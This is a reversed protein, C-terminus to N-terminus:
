RYRPPNQMFRLHIDGAHRRVRQRVPRIGANRFHAAHERRGIERSVAAMRYRVGVRHQFGSAHDTEDVDDFRALHTLLAERPKAPLNGGVCGQESNVRIKIHNLAAINGRSNAGCRITKLGIEDADARVPM